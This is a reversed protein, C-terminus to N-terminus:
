PIRQSFIRDNFVMDCRFGNENRLSVKGKLQHETILKILKMGLSGDKEDDFGEPLGTGTDSYTISVEGKSSRSFSIHIRGSEGEPFAYKISNTFLETLVLGCPIAIDIMMRLQDADIELSIKRDELDYGPALNDFLKHIYDYFNIYSLNESNYLMQHVLSMAQIRSELDRIFEDINPDSFRVSKLHMMSCIVQMNNKTRHHLERLLTQKEELSDIMRQESIKRESIDQGISQYLMPKGTSSFIGRFTWLMWAPASDDRRNMRYERKMYPSRDSLRGINEIVESRNKEPFFDYFVSRTIKGPGTKFYSCFSSNAFSISGDVTFSCILVPTDEIVSRYLEESKRLKDETKIRETIDRTAGQFGCPLGSKNFILKANIEVPLYTGDKRKIRTELIINRFRAYDRVASVATKALKVYDAPETHDALKTGLWEDVTYGTMPLVAPSIYTFTMNLDMRWIADISNEFLLRHEEESSKLMQEAKKRDTIDLILGNAYEILEPDDEYPIGRSRIDLWRIGGTPHIYRIEMSFRFPPRMGELNAQQLGAKDDPHVLLFWSSYDRVSEEPIGLMRSYNPSVHLVEVKGTERNFRNRYIIYGAPNELLSHLHNESIRGDKEAESKGATMVSVRQISNRLGQTGSYFMFPLGAAALLSGELGKEIIRSSFETDILVASFRGASEELLRFGEGPDTCFTLNTRASIEGERFEEIRGTSTIILIEANIIKKDNM